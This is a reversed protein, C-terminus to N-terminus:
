GSQAGLARRDPQDIAVALEKARVLSDTYGAEAINAYTELVASVPPAEAFAPGSCALTLCAAVAIRRPSLLMITM